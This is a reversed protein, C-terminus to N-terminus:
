GLIGGEGTIFSDILLGGGGILNFIAPPAPAGPAALANGGYLHLMMARDDADVAGDAEFMPCFVLPSAFYLMNFRKARSDIAM